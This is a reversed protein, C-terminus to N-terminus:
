ALGDSLPHPAMILHRNPRKFYPPLHNLNLSCNLSFLRNHMAILSALLWRALCGVLIETLTGFLTNNMPSNLKFVSYKKLEVKCLALVNCGIRKLTKLHQLSQSTLIVQVTITIKVEEKAAQLHLVSRKVFQVREEMRGDRAAVKRKLAAIQV